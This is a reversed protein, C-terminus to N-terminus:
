TKKLNITKKRNSTKPIPYMLYDYKRLTDARDLKPKRNKAKGKDAPGNGKVRYIRHNDTTRLLPLGDAKINLIDGEWDHTPIKRQVRRFKGSSSLVMDGVSINQIEKPGSKTLVNMGPLICSLNLTLDASGILEAIDKDTVPSGDTIFIQKGLLDEGVKDKIVRSILDPMNSDPSQPNLIHAFFKIRRNKICARAAAEFTRSLHKRLSNRAFTFIMTDKDSVGMTARILRKKEPDLPKFLKLDVGHYLVGSEFGEKKLMEQTFKSMALIRDARRLIAHGLYPIYAGDLPTYLVLKTHGMDLHAMGYLTQSFTDDLSVLIDPQLKRLYEQIKKGILNREKTHPVPHLLCGQIEKTPGSYGQGLIHVEFQPNKALRFCLERTVKAYGTWMLPSNSHWAVRIKEKPKVDIDKAIDLLSV